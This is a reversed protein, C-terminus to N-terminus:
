AESDVEIDGDLTEDDAIKIFTSTDGISKSDSLSDELLDDVVDDEDDVVDVVDV